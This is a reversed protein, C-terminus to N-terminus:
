ILPLELIKLMTKRLHKEEVTNSISLDELSNDAALTIVDREEGPLDFGILVTQSDAMYSPYVGGTEIYAIATIPCFNDFTTNKLKGRIQNPKDLFWKFKGQAKRLRNYFQRRQNKTL